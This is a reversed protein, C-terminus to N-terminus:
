SEESRHYGSYKSVFKPKFRKLINKVSRRLSIHYKYTFASASANLASNALGYLSLSSDLNRTKIGPLPFIKRKEVADLGARPDV